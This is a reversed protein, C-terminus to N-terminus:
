IIVVALPPVFKWLKLRVSADTAHTSSANGFFMQWVAMITRFSKHLWTQQIEVAPSQSVQFMRKVRRENSLFWHIHVPWIGFNTGFSRDCTHELWEGHQMYSRNWRSTQTRIFSLRLEISRRDVICGLQPHNISRLDVSSEACLASM